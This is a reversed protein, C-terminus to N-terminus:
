TGAYLSNPTKKTEKNDTFFIKKSVEPPRLGIHLVLPGDFGTVFSVISHWTNWGTRGALSESVLEYHRLNWGKRPAMELFRRRTNADGGFLARATTFMSFVMPGGEYSVSISYGIQSTSLAQQISSRTIEEILHFLDAVRSNLGSQKMLLSVEWPEVCDARFYFEIRSSNPEYGVIKLQAHPSSLLPETGLFACFFHDAEVSATRPVEVYIKFSDNAPGHRGGIWTGYRLPGFKQINHLLGNVTESLQPAGLYALHRLAYDLRESEDVEPGAVETTYRISEDVSSFTFEVPFGDGTLRSFTWAVEQWPSAYVGELVFNLAAEAREASLPAEKSILGIATIHAKEEKCHGPILYERKTM